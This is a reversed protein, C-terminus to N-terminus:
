ESENKEGKKETKAGGGGAAGGRPKLKLEVSATEGAKITVAHRAMGQGRIGAIVMYEGAPVDAMTFKGDADTTATAVPKPRDGKPAKAPKDPKEEALRRAQREARAAQKAAKSTAQARGREFPKVLRVMASAAPKGDVDLVTGSVGGTGSAPSAADKARIASSLSLTLALAVVPTAWKMVRFM